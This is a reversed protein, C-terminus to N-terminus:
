ILIFINKRFLWLCILWEITLRVFHNLPETWLGIVPEFHGTFVGGTQLFWKGLLGHLMYVFISNMGFVIFPFSWKSIGRVDILWYFLLLLLTILGCTLLVYSSTFMRKIIPIVPNLAMGIIIGSVGLIALTKVFHKDSKRKILLKGIISGYIIVAISTILTYLYGWRTTSGTIKNDILYVLNKFLVYSNRGAEPVPLIFIFFWYIFLLGAFVMWQFRINKGAFLYAGFYSIGLVQLVGPGFYPKGAAIWSLSFGLFFLILARKVANSWRKPENEKKRRNESLSMAVGIIFLFWPLILDEFHFGRWPAHTLQNYIFGVVPRDSLEKLGFTHILMSFMVFGRFADLSRVRKGTVTLSSLNQLM